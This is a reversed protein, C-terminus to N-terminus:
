RVVVVKETAILRNGLKPSKRLQVFYMGNPYQSINLTTSNGQISQTLLIKGDITVLHLVEDTLEKDSQITLIDSGLPCIVKLNIGLNLEDIPNITCGGVNFKQIGGKPTEFCLLPVTTNECLPYQPFFCWEFGIDKIIFNGIDGYHDLITIGNENLNSIYQVQVINGNLNKFGVSDILVWVDQISGVWPMKIKLTDGAVLSFDYLLHDEEKFRYFVKDDTKRILLLKDPFSPRTCECNGSLKQYTLNNILTDKVVSLQRITDLSTNPNIQFFYGQRYTWTTGIEYQASLSTVTIFLLILTRM